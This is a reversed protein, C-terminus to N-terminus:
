QVKQTHKPPWVWSMRCLGVRISVLIPAVLMAAPLADAPSEQDAAQLSFALWVPVRKQCKSARPGIDLPCYRTGQFMWWCEPTYSSRNDWNTHTSSCGLSRLILKWLIVWERIDQFGLSCMNTTWLESRITVNRERIDRIKTMVAFRWRLWGVGECQAMHWYYTSHRRRRRRRIGSTSHQHMCTGRRGRLNHSTSWM